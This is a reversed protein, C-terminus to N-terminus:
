HLSAVLSTWNLWSVEWVLIVPTETENDLGQLKLQSMASLSPQSQEQSEQFRQLDNHLSHNNMFHLVNHLVRLMRKMLSDYLLLTDETVLKNLHATLCVAVPFGEQGCGDADVVTRQLCRCLSSCFM